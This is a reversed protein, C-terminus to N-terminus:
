ASRMLDIRKLYSCNCLSLENTTRTTSKETGNYLKYTKVKVFFINNTWCFYFGQAPSEFEANEGM